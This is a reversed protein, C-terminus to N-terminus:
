FPERIMWSVNKGVCKWSLHNPILIMREYYVYVINKLLTKRGWLLINKFFSLSLLCIFVGFFFFFFLVRKKVIDFNVGDGLRIKGVVNWSQIKKENKRKSIIKILCKTFWLFCLFGMDILSFLFCPQFSCSCFFSFKASVFSIVLKFPRPLLGSSTISMASPLGVPLTELLTYLEMRSTCRLLFSWFWHWPGWQLFLLWTRSDTGLEQHFQAVSFVKKRERQGNSKLIQPSTIVSSDKWTYHSNIYQITLRVGCGRESILIKQAKPISM